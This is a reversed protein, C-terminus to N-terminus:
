HCIDQIQRSGKVFYGILSSELSIHSYMQKPCAPMWLELVELNKDVSSYKCARHFPMSHRERLIKFGVVVSLWVWHKM